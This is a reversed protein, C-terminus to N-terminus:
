DVQKNQRTPVNLCKHWDSKPPFIILICVTKFFILFILKVVYNAFHRGNQELKCM